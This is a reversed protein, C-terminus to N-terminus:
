PNLIILNSLFAFIKEENEPIIGTRSEIKMSGTSPHNNGPDARIGPKLAKEGNSCVPQIDERIYKLELALELLAEYNSLTTLPCGAKSFNETAVPFGYTFVALM